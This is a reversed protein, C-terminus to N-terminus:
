GPPTPRPRGQPGRPSLYGRLGGSAGGAGPATGEGGGPPFRPLPGQLSRPGGGGRSGPVAAGDAWTGPAFVIGCALLAAAVVGTKRGCPLVRDARLGRSREETM